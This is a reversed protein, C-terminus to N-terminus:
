SGDIVDYIPRYSKKWQKYLMEYGNVEYATEYGYVAIRSQQYAYTSHLSHDLEEERIQRFHHIAPIVQGKGIYYISMCLLLNADTPYREKQNLFWRGSIDSNKEDASALALALMFAVRELTILDGIEKLARQGQGQELMYSLFPTLWRKRNESQSMRMFTVALHEKEGTQDYYWVLFEWVNEDADQMMGDIYPAMAFPWKGTAMRYLKIYACEYKIAKQRNPERSILGYGEKAWDLGKNYRGIEMYILGINLASKATHLRHYSKMYANFAQNKDGADYCEDGYNLLREEQSQQRYSRIYRRITDKNRMWEQNMVFTEFTSLNEEGIATMICYPREMFHFVYSEPEEYLVTHIGKVFTAETRMYISM